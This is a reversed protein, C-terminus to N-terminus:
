LHLDIGEETLMFDSFALVSSGAKKCNNLVALMMHTGINANEQRIRFWGDNITEDNSIFWVNCYGPTDPNVEIKSVWGDAIMFDGTSYANIEATCHKKSKAFKFVLLFCICGLFVSFLSSKNVGTCIASALILGVVALIISMCKCTKMKSKCYAKIYKAIQEVERSNPRRFAGPSYNSSIRM